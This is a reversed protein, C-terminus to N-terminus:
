RLGKLTLLAGHLGFKCYYSQTQPYNDEQGCDKDDIRQERHPLFVTEAPRKPADDPEDDNDYTGTGENRKESSVILRHSRKFFDRM